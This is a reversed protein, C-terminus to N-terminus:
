FVLFFYLYIIQALLMFSSAICLSLVCFVCDCSFFCSCLVFVCVSFLCVPGIISGQPIGDTTQAKLESPQLLDKDM